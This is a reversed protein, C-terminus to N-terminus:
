GHSGGFVGQYTLFCHTFGGLLDRCYPFHRQVGNQIFSLFYEQEMRNRIREQDKGM